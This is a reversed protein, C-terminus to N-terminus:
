ACCRTLVVLCARGRFPSGCGDSSRWPGHFGPRCRRGDRWGLRHCPAGGRGGVDCGLVFQCQDLSSSTVPLVTRGVATALAAGAAWGRGGAAATAATPWAGLWVPWAQRWPARRWVSWGSAPALGASGGTAMAGLVGAGAALGALVGTGGGAALVTTFSSGFGALCGSGFSSVGGRAVATALATV